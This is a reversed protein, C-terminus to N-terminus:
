YQATCHLLPVDLTSGDGLPVPPFGPYTKRPLLTMTVRSLPLELDWDDTPSITFIIVVKEVQNDSVICEDGCFDM